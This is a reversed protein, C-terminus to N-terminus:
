WPNEFHIKRVLYNTSAKSADYAFTPYPLSEIDAISGIHATIVFFKPAPSAELLPKFAKILNLPGITNVEVYKRVDHTSTELTSAM